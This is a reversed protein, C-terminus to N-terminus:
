PSTDGAEPLLSLSQEGDHRVRGLVSWLLMAKGWMLKVSRWIRGDRATCHSGGGAPARSLARGAPQSRVTDGSADPESGAGSGPGRGAPFSRQEAEVMCLLDVALFYLALSSKQGPIHYSRDNFTEQTWSAFPAAAANLSAAPHLTGPLLLPLRTM